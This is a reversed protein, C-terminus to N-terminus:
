DEVQGVMRWRDLSLIEKESNNRARFRILFQDRGAAYPTLDYWGSTDVAAIQWAKGNDASIGIAIQGQNWTRCKADRFKLSEGTRVEYVIEGQAKPSLHLGGEGRRFGSISQARWTRGDSEGMYDNVDFAGPRKLVLSGLMQATAEPLPLGFKDHLEVYADAAVIAKKRDMPDGSKYYARIAIFSEMFLRTARLCREDREVRALRLKDDRVKFKAIAARALAEELLDLPYLGSANELDVEHAGKKVATRMHSEFREYVYRMEDAAAGFYAPYFQQLLDEVRHGWGLRMSLWLHADTGMNRDLYESGDGTFGLRAHYEHEAQLKRFMTYPGPFWGHYFYSWATPLITMWQEVNRRYAIADPHDDTKPKIQDMWPKGPVGASCVVGILNEHARIKEEPADFTARYVLFALKKGPHVVNVKEIVKSAVILVRAADNPAMAKCNDCECYGGGDNASFSYFDYQPNEGFLRIFYEVAVDVAGPHSLCVQGRGQSVEPHRRGDHFSALDPEKELIERTYIRYWNHAYNGRLGGHRNRRYWEGMDYIEPASGGNLGPGLPRHSSYWPSRWEQSPKVVQYGREVKLKVTSRAPIHEGIKGPTFWHCGLHDELLGYVANRLGEIRPAALVVERGDAVILYGDPWFRSEDALDVPLQIGKPPIGIYIPVGKAASPDSVIPISAGSMRELHYALDEAAARLTADAEVPVVITCRGEGDEVLVTEPAPASAALGHGLVIGSLAWLLSASQGVEAPFLTM